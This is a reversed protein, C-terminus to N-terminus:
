VTYDLEVNYKQIIRRVRVYNGGHPNMGLSKMATYGSTNEKLADIIQEDTYTVGGPQKNNGVKYTDTTSHCNPCILRLNSRSDNRRDGDIHDLDFKLKKGHWETTIGCMDCCGNQELLIRDRQENKNLEDFPLTQISIKRQEKHRASRAIAAKRSRESRAEPTMKTWSPTKTRAM